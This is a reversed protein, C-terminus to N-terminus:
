LYEAHMWDGQQRLIHMSYGHADDGPDDARTIAGVVAGAVALVSGLCHQLFFPAIRRLRQSLPLVAASTDAAPAASPDNVEDSM